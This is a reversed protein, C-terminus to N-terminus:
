PSIFRSPCPLLLSFINTSRLDLVAQGGRDEKEGCNGAMELSWGTLREFYILLTVYLCAGLFDPPPPKLYGSTVSFHRNLASLRLWETCSQRISERQSQTGSVKEPPETQIRSLLSLTLLLCCPYHYFRIAIPTLKCRVQLNTISSM